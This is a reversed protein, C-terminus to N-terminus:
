DRNQETEKQQENEFEEFFTETNDEIRNVGIWIMRILPVLIFYALVCILAIIIWLAIMYQGRSLLRIDALSSFNNFAIEWHTSPLRAM